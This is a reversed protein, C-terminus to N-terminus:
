RSTKIKRSISCNLISSVALASPIEVADTLVLNSRARSMNRSKNAGPRPPEQLRFRENALPAFGHYDIAFLYPALNRVIQITFNIRFQTGSDFLMNTSALVARGHQFTSAVHNLQIAILAHHLYGETEAPTQM